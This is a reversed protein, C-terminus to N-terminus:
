GYPQSFLPFVKQFVQPISNVDSIVSVREGPFFLKISQCIGCWFGVQHPMQIQTFRRLHCSRCNVTFIRIRLSSRLHKGM